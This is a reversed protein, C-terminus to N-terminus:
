ALRTLVTNMRDVLYTRIDYVGYTFDIGAFACLMEVAQKFAGETLSGQEYFRTIQIADSKILNVMPPQQNLKRKLELIWAVENDMRNQEVTYKEHNLDDVAVAASALALLHNNSHHDSLAYNPANVYSGDHRTTQAPLSHQMAQVQHHQQPHHTYTFPQTPPEVQNVEGLYDTTEEHESPTASGM